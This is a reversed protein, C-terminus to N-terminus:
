TSQCDMTSTDRRIRPRHLMHDCKTPVSMQEQFPTGFVESHGVVSYTSNLVLSDVMTRINEVLYTVNFAVSDVIDVTSRIQNSLIGGTLFISVRLERLRISSSLLNVLGTPKRSLM